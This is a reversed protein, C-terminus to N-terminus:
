CDAGCNKKKRIIHSKVKFKVSSPQYIKNQVNKGSYKSKFKSIDFIKHSTNIKQGSKSLIERKQM